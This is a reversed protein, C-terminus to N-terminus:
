IIKTLCTDLKCLKCPTTMSIADYDFWKVCVLCLFLCVISAFSVCKQSSVKMSLYNKIKSTKVRPLPPYKTCGRRLALWFLGHHIANLPNLNLKKTTNIFFTNMTKSIVRGNTIIVDNEVPTIKNFSSRKNSFCPKVSKWFSKNRSVDSINTNSFYPKESKRLLTM